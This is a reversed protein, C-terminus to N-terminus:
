FWFRVGAVLQLDDTDAGEARAYDATNGYLRTWNVGAYPAFERRIEYRLRLGAEIDSLGSGVGTDPDNRGYLNLEIEPTLVLKQTLMIEYEAQLRVASRGADGIFLAADIDFFYPALGKVGFAAWDRDPDPRIDRRWGLQLDWFPAIARSYLLQLEMEEVSNDVYEGDTKLWFKNLDKGIWGEADWVLPNDDDTDRVELQDVVLMSLLPDDNMGGALSIGPVLMMVIFFAIYKTMIM